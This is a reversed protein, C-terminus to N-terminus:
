CQNEGALSIMGFINRVIQKKLQAVPTWCWKSYARVGIEDLTLIRALKIKELQSIFARNPPNMPTARECSYIRNERVWDPMPPIASSVVEDHESTTQHLLHTPRTISQGHSKTATPTFSSSKKDVYGPKVADKARDRKMFKNFRFRPNDNALNRTSQTTGVQAGTGENTVWSPKRTFLKSECAKEIVPPHVTARELPLKRAEYIVYGEFSQFRGVSLSDYLWDMKLVKVKDTFSEVLPTQPSTEQSEVNSPSSMTSSTSIRSLSLQSMPKTNADEGDETESATSSDEAVVNM